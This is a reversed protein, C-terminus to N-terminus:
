VGRVRVNPLATRLVRLLDRVEGTLWSPLYVDASGDANVILVCKFESNAIYLENFHRRYYYGSRRLLCTLEDLRKLLTAMM